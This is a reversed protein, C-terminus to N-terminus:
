ESRGPRNYKKHLQLSCKNDRKKTGHKAEIQATEAKVGSHIFRSSKDTNATTSRTGWRMLWAKGESDRSGKTRTRALPFGRREKGPLCGVGKCARSAGVWELGMEEGQRGLGSHRSGQRLGM